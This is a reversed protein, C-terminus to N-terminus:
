RCTTGVLITTDAHVLVRSYLVTLVKGPILTVASAVLNSLYKQSCSKIGDQQLFEHWGTAFSKGNQQFGPEFRHHLPRCLLAGEVSKDEGVEVDVCPFVPKINFYKTLRFFIYQCKEM